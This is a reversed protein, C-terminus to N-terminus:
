PKLLIALGIVKISLIVKIFNAFYKNTNTSITSLFLIPLLLYLFILFILQLITSIKALHQFKSLGLDLSKDLDLLDIM